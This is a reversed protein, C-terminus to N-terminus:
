FIVNIILVLVPQHVLYIVLSHRGLFSFFGVFKLHSLDMLRFQRKYGKYFINGLFIGVLVVGFWPLLPYYDVTYFRSPVFGLWLLWNFDFTLSKLFIGISVLILGFMLNFFRYKLFPYSLIICMGICHLVGFIVFGEVLYFWTIVTIILGYGFIKLGRKLYKLQLERRNLVTKGRAYSL